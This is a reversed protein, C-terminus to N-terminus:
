AKVEGVARGLWASAQPGLKEAIKRLEAIDEPWGHGSALDPAHKQMTHYADLVDCVRLILAEQLTLSWNLGMDTLVELEAREYAARLAPFRRKAPGPIDGVIREADDHHLCARDLDPSTAIGMAGALSQALDLVRIQHADITDGCNRLRADPHAHFRNVTM